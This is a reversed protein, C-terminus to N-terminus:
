YVPNAVQAMHALEWKHLFKSSLQYLAIIKGEIRLALWHGPQLQIAEVAIVERPFCELLSILLNKWLIENSSLSNYSQISSKSLFAFDEPERM